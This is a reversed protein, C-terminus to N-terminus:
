LNGIYDIVKAIRKKINAFLDYQDRDILKVMKEPTAQVSSIKTSQDVLQICAGNSLTFGNNVRKIEQTKLRAEIKSKIVYRRNSNRQWSLEESQLRKSQDIAKQVKKMLESDNEQDNHVPLRMKMHHCM